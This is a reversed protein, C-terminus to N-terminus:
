TRKRERDQERREDRDKEEFKLREIIKDLKELMKGGESKQFEKEEGSKQDNEERRNRWKRWLNEKISRLELRRRKEEDALFIERERKPLTEIAVIIKENIKREEFKGKKRESKRLREAKREEEIKRVRQEEQRDTWESANERLFDRCLRLLEWGKELNNAKELRQKKENEEREIERRFATMKGEWDYYEPSMNGGFEAYRDTVGEEYKSKKKVPESNLETPPRKGVPGGGMPIGWAKRIDQV